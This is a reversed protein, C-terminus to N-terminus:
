VPPELTTSTMLTAPPIMRKRLDDEASRRREPAGELDVKAQDRYYTTLNGMLRLVLLRGEDVYAAAKAKNSDSLKQELAAAHIEVVDRPGAALRGLREAESRLAAPVRRDMQFAREELAGDLLRDYAAVCDDFM